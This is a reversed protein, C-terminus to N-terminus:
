QLAERDPEFYSRINPTTTVFSQQSSFFSSFLTQHLHIPRNSLFNAILVLQSCFPLSGYSLNTRYRSTLHPTVRLFNCLQFINRKNNNTTSYERYLVGKRYKSTAIFWWSLVSHQTYPLRELVIQGRRVRYQQSQICTTKGSSEIPVLFLPKIM